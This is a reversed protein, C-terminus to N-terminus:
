FMIDGANFTNSDNKGSKSTAPLTPAHSRQLIAGRIGDVVIPLAMTFAVSSLTFFLGYSFNCIQGLLWSKGGVDQQRSNNEEGRRDAEARANESQAREDFDIAITPNEDIPSVTFPM